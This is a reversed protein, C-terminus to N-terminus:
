KNPKFGDTYGGYVDKEQNVQQSFNNARESAEEHAGGKGHKDGYDMGNGNNGETRLYNEYLEHFVVNNRPYPFAGSKTRPNSRYFDGDYITVSGDVGDEPIDNGYNDESIDTRKTISLNVIATQATPASNRLVFRELQGTARIRGLSEDSVSYKYVKQSTILTNVFKVGAYNKVDDPLKNFDNFVIKDGVLQVQSQYKDPILSQIDRLSLAIDGGVKLDRGDPDTFVIPSNAVFAYPSLSPYKRALPDVNMAFVVPDFNYQNYLIDRPIFSVVKQTKTDFVTNGYRELPKVKINEDFLGNSLSAYRTDKVFPHNLGQPKHNQTSARMISDGVWDQILINKMEYPMELYGLQYLHTIWQEYEKFDKQQKLTTIDKRQQVIRTELVEAKLLMANLNLSDYTLATEACSLMFDDEKIGFKYEYGKALYVLCLAITQKRDLERLAIGTKIAKTPTYTLTSITGAGAFSRSSLEVNYFVGKDDAHRIYIHSPATCLRADSALRDSFIKFLSALAFCNGEKTNILNIVQTNQWNITGMPDSNSYEYPLHLSTDGAKFFISAKTLYEYIAYNALVKEYNAVKQTKSQLWDSKPNLKSSGRYTAIVKNINATHYDLSGKYSAYDVGGGYWSNEIYFIADEYSLETKGNLMNELQVKAEYFHAKAISDANAAYLKLPIASLVFLLIKIAKM